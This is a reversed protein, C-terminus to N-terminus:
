VEFIVEVPRYATNGPYVLLPILCEVTEANMQVWEEEEEADEDRPHDSKRGGDKGESVDDESEEDADHYTGAAIANLIGVWASLGKSATSTFGLGTPAADTRSPITTHKTPVIREMPAVTKWSKGWENTKSGFPDVENDSSDDRVINRIEIRKNKGKLSSSAMTSSLSTSSSGNVNPNGSGSVAVLLTLRVKWEHGGNTTPEVPHGDNESGGRAFVGFGPSGDSPIDLSFAVRRSNVTGSSQYDTHIRRIAQSTSSSLWPPHEHSELSSSVEVSLSPDFSAPALSITNVKLVKSICTDNNFEVVVHVSEGLRYSSKVFTLEAVKSNEKTIDYSVPFLSLLFAVRIVLCFTGKRTNRTVIEVAERCGTLEGTGGSIGLGSNEGDTNADPVKRGDGCEIEEDLTTPDNALLKRAYSRLSQIDQNVSTNLTTSQSPYFAEGGLTKGGYIAGKGKKTEETVGVVAKERRQLIPWLLDYPRPLSNVSVNNYVRIPVRMVRSAQVNGGGGGSNTLLGSTARCTGVTFQYSFRMSRGKFTPPLVTPLDITYTYSKSEGPALRLDIALLSPQTEFTPLEEDAARSFGTNIGSGGSDAGGGGGAFLGFGFWSSGRKHGRTGIGTAGAGPGLVLDLSGGGIRGKRLKDRLAYLEPANHVAVSDISFTGSFQAYAYLLLETSLPSFMTAYASQSQAANHSSPPHQPALSATKTFRTGSPTSPASYPHNYTPSGTLEHITSLTSPYNNSIADPSLGGTGVLSQKRAHPHSAPLTTERNPSLSSPTYPVEDGGSDVSVSMSRGIRKREKGNEERGGVLGKRKPGVDEGNLASNAGLGIGLQGYYPIATKPTGPSTPPRALPVSSVSHSSRKHKQITTTTATVPTTTSALPLSYEGTQVDTSSVARVNGGIPRPKTPEGARVNAFTITCSFPEGAFYASQSPEITIRIGTQPDTQTHHFSNPRTYM